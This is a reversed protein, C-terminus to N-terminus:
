SLSLFIEEQVKYEDQDIWKAYTTYSMEVSHSLKEACWNYSLSADLMRCDCSHRVNYPDRYRVDIPGLARM